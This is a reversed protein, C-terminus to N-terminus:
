TVNKPLLIQKSFIDNYLEKQSRGTFVFDNKGTLLEVLIICSAWVDVNIGYNDKLLMEPPMYLLTGVQSHMKASMTSLSKSLGFDCILVRGGNDLLINEPKLDRHVIKKSTLYAM